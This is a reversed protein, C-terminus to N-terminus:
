ATVPADGWPPGRRGVGGQLIRASLTRVAESRAPLPRPFAPLAVPRPRSRLVMSALFWLAAEGHALCLGLLVAAAAHALVMALGVTALDAAMAHPPMGRMGPAGPPPCTTTAVHVMSMAQGRATTLCTGTSSAAALAEHLLVQCFGVLAVVAVRGLRRGTVMVCLWWTLLVLVATGRLSPPEGGGLLHAGLSLTYAALALGLARTLRLAGSAPGLM